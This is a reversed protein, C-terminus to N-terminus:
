REVAAPMDRGSRAAERLGRIFVAPSEWSGDYRLGNVFFTPTGNVGSRVGSRFDARVRAAHVETELERRVREESRDWEAIRDARPRGLDGLSNARRGGVRREADRLRPARALYRDRDAEGHELLRLLFQPGFALRLFELLGM